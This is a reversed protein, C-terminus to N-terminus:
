SRQWVMALRSRQQRASNEPSAPKTASRPHSGNPATAAGGFTLTKDGTYATVTNNAADKATITLDDAAGATPTTTAPALVLRTAAGSALMVATTTSTTTWGRWVATVTYSHSGTSVGSDTCSTTAGPATSTACDGALAEGDRAVYYRVTGSASATVASWTLAVTGAGPGATTISPANLTGTSVHATGAGTTSFWASAAPASCIVLLSVLIALKNHRTV